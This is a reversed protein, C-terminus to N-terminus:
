ILNGIQIRADYDEHSADVLVIGAVENPYLRYFARAEFGGVSHGM